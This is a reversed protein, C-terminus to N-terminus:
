YLHHTLTRDDPTNEPLDTDLLIVPQRSGRYGELVYLWGGVWVQRDEIPVTIKAKLVCHCREAPDWPDPHETQHGHADLEQRFYGERSVLTVGVLPLGLDAASRLTDGALVGLGGSYTPIDARLAIEMSFYATRAQSIFEEHM